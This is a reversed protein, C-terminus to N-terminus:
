FPDAVVPTTVTTCVPPSPWTFAQEFGSGDVPDESRVVVYNWTGGPVFRDSGTAAGDVVTDVPSWGEPIACAAAGDVRYIRVETTGPPNTWSLNVTSGDAGPVVAARLNSIPAITPVTVDVFARTPGTLTGRGNRSWIAYCYRAAVAPTADGFVDEFAEGLGVDRRLAGADPTAPCAGAPTSRSVVSGYSNTVDRWSLKAAVTRTSAAVTPVGVKGAPTASRLCYPKARVIGRGGYRRAAARVDRLQQMRCTWQNDPPRYTCDATGAVGMLSCGRVHDLGLTHGLEHAAVEAITEPVAYGPYDLITNGRRVPATAVLATDLEVFAGSAMGLTARGAQSGPMSRARFVVHAASRRSTRAFRIGIRADNWSRLAIDIGERYARPTADYVRIVPVNWSRVARGHKGAADRTLVPTSAAAISPAALVACLVSVVLLPLLRLGTM